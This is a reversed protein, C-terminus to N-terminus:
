HCIAPLLGRTVAIPLPGRAHLLASLSPREVVEMTLYVPGDPLMGGDYTPVINQHALRHGARIERKFRGQAIEREKPDEIKKLVKLAEMRKAALNEVLYVEGM